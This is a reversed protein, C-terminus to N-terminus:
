TSAPRYAAVPTVAPRALWGLMPMQKVEFGWVLDAVLFPFVVAVWLQQLRQAASAFRAMNAAGDARGRAARPGVHADHARRLEGLRRLGLDRRQM